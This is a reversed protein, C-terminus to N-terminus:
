ASANSRKISRRRVPFAVVKLEADEEGYPDLLVYRPSGVGAHDAALCRRCTCPVALYLGHRDTISGHYHALDGPEILDLSRLLTDSM